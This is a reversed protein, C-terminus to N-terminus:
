MGLVISSDSLRKMLQFGSLENGEYTLSLIELLGGGTQVIFRYPDGIVEGIMGHGGQCSVVRKSEWILLKEGHLFTFAGPYPKTQARIFNYIEFSNKAWDIRGDKPSRQPFVRRKEENQKIFTATGKAIKPLYEMILNLGLSEIRTYLTAITDSKLIYTERQGVIPGNDVGDAFQFLTIGTKKEGNIIAWVLPAGGSYDPLLSAHLGYAPAFTRWFSPVMHYWGAVLFIEPGWSSVKEFLGEEKMNDKMVVCPINSEQCYKFVDAYLVNKVGQPSYSIPFTQPVTVAGVIQCDCIRQAIKLCKLGFCSAGIFVVNM